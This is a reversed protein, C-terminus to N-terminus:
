PRRALRRARGRLADRLEDPTDRWAGGRLGHQARQGRLRGRRARRRAAGTPAARRFENGASAGTNGLALRNISQYGGNDLVVVTLKLGEQVATVLETPSMLYTGDGIM